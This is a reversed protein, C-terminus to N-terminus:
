GDNAVSFTLMAFVRNAGLPFVLSLRIEFCDGGM